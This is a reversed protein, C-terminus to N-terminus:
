GGNGRWTKIVKETSRGVVYGGLGLEMLSWLQPPLELRPAEAWFLAMYPYLLYNNAVIAIITLMLIPRWSRQLWNGSMEALMVKLRSEIEVLEGKSQLEVLRLKAKEREGADPWLKDIITSGLDLISGIM